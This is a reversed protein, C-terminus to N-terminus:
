DLAIALAVTDDRAEVVLSKLITDVIDQPTRGRLASLLERLAAIGDDIDQGPQEILGDTYLFVVIGAPLTIHHDRRRGRALHGAGLMIDHDALLRTSGDPYVVLPPCHGANSWTMEWGGSAGAPEIRALLATGAAPVGIGACADELGTIVAAPSECRTSWCAQLLMSRVRSMITAAHVDHGVIDGVSVAVPRIGAPETAPLRTLDYWDGGVEERSDAPLYRAGVTLGPVTPLTPLMAHQLEHAVSIRHQLLRVRVLAQAAYGAISRIVILETPSMRRPRDWSLTLAGLAEDGAMMPTVTVAEMRLLEMLPASDPYDAVLAARDPYQVVRRERIAVASSMPADLGFDKWSGTDEPGPPEAPHRLRHLMGDPGLLVMSIYTPALETTVLEAVRVRVDTVTSVQALWQSAALLTHSLSLAARLARDSDDRRARERSADFGCLRLRLEMSCAHALDALAAVEDASWHRVDTDIACLSGLVVGAGDTLPMGAYAVVGLEPVARNDRVWPHARADEIILPEAGAVVYQCFSHSLPTCRATAWPEPLGVMGPFVQTDATVLSVLAVPVNLRERVRQAYHEMGADAERSLGAQHLALLRDATDLEPIPRPLSSVDRWRPYGESM